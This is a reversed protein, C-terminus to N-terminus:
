SGEFLAAGGDEDNGGDEKDGAMVNELSESDDEEIFKKM